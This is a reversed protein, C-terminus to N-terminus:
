ESDRRDHPMCLRLVCILLNDGDHVVIWPVPIRERIGGPANWEVAVDPSVPRHPIGAFKARVDEVTDSPNAFGPEMAAHMDLYERSAM